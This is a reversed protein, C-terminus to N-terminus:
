TSKHNLQQVRAQLRDTALMLEDVQQHFDDFEPKTPTVRLEEQLYVSLQHQHYRWQHQLWDGTKDIMTATIPGAIDGLHDQLCTQWDIDLHDLIAQWRQLLANDGTVKVGTNALNHPHNLLTALAMPAGTLRTTIPLECHSAIRIGHNTGQCFLAMVPIGISTVEIALIDTLQSVRRKTAPDYTLAANIASEAAAAIAITITSHRKVAM